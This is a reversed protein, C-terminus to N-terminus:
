GAQGIAAAIMAPVEPALGLPPLVVGAFGAAAMAQPLDETVHGAETAFFPLCIAQAGLGRAQADLYPAEEIFGCLARGVQEGLRAALDYAAEAPARSRGSGHAAVLVSTEDLAWGRDRAVTAIQGLALAAVGPDAGFPALIRVDRAGALALRRPLEVRTFWGGAMFMPYVLAGDRIGRALAGEFALTAGSVAHDPLLAGVRAALAEIARQQPPPDGPQGHAVILVPRVM